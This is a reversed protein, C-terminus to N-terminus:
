PKVEYLDCPTARAAKPKGSGFAVTVDGVQAILDKGDKRVKVTLATRIREAAAEMVVLTQIAKAPDSAVDATHDSAVRCHRVADCIACKSPSPWAPADTSGNHLQWQETASLIRLRYQDMYRREFAVAGTVENDGLMAVRVFVREVEPYNKMILWAYTQFQFSDRVETATWRKWGSKWDYLELEEKSPTALLLDVEGTVRVAGSTETQPFIDAALQGSLAGAGGDYRLIDSASRECVIRGITWSCGSLIMAVRPQVDTRPCRKGADILLQAFESPRVIRDSAMVVMTIGASIADHCQSGTETAENSVDVKHAEMLAAQHPCTAWRELTSRDLIVPLPEFSEWPIQDPFEEIIDTSQNKM